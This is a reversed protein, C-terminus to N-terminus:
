MNCCFFHSFTFAAQKFLNPPTRASEVACRRVEPLLSDLTAGNQLREKFETTKDRLEEMSLAQMAPELANVPEVVTRRLRDITTDDGEQGGRVRRVGVACVLNCFIRYQTRRTCLSPIRNSRMTM